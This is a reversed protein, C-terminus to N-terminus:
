AAPEVTSAAAVAPQLDLNSNGCGGAVGGMGGVLINVTSGATVPLTARTHGGPGGLEADGMGGGEGGFLDFTAQVVGAPVTWTQVNGTYQFTVSTPAPQAHTTVPVVLSATATLAALGVRVVNM